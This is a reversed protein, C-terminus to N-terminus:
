MPMPPDFRDQSVPSRFASRWPSCGLGRLVFRMSAPAEFRFGSLWLSDLRILAILTFGCIKPPLPPHLSLAPHIAAFGLSDVCDFYFPRTPLSPLPLRDRIGSPSSPPRPAFVIRRLGHAGIVPSQHFYIARSTELIAAAYHMGGILKPTRGTNPRRPPPDPKPMDQPAPDAGRKSSKGKVQVVAMGEGPLSSPPSPVGASEDITRRSPSHTTQSKVYAGM